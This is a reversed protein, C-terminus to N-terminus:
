AASSWARGCRRHVLLSNMVRRIAETIKEANFRGLTADELLTAM